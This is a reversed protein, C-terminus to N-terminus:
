ARVAKPMADLEEVAFRTSRTDDLKYRTLRHETVWRDITRPSVGMYEAAEQRTM